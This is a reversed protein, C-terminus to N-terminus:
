GALVRALPGDKAANRCWGPKAGPALVAVLEDRIFLRARTLVGDHDFEWELTVETETTIPELVDRSFASPNLFPMKSPGERCPPQEPTQGRNYLWVDGVIADSDQLYAYAVDGDDEVVVVWRGGPECVRLLLAM